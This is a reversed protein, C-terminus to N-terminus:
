RRQRKMAQQTADARHLELEIHRSYWAIVRERFAPPYFGRDWDYLNLGAAHAAEWELLAPSIEIHTEM